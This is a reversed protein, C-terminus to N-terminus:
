TTDRAVDLTGARLQALGLESLVDPDGPALRRAETFAAIAGALDDKTAKRGKALLAQVAQPDAPAPALDPAAPPPPPPSSSSPRRCGSSIALVLGLASLAVGLRSGMM